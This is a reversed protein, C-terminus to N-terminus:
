KTQNTRFQFCPDCNLFSDTILGLWKPGIIVSTITCNGPNDNQLDLKYCAPKQPPKDYTLPNAEKNYTLYTAAPHIIIPAHEITVGDTYNM